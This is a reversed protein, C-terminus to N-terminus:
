SRYTEIKRNSVNGDINMKKRFDDNSLYSKSPRFLKSIFIRSHSSDEQKSVKLIQPIFEPDWLGKESTM